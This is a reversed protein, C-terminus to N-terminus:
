CGVTCLASSTKGTSERSPATDESMEFAFQFNFWDPGPITAPFAGNLRDRLPLLDGFNAGSACENGVADPLRCNQLAQFASHVVITASESGSGTQSWAEPKSGIESQSTLKTLCRKFIPKSQAIV